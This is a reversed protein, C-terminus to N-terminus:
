NSRKYQSVSIDGLVTCQCALREDEFTTFEKESKNKESVNKLDGIIQVKCTGCMGIRCSFNVPAKVKRCVEFLTVSSQDTEFTKDTNLFNIKM